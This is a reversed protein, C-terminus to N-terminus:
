KKRYRMGPATFAEAVGAIIAKSGFRAYLGSFEEGYNMLGTMNGLDRVSLKGGEDFHVVPVTKHHIFVQYLYDNDFDRELNKEWEEQSLDLGVYVGQGANKDMPKMVYKDKNNKVEEFVSTDGGFIGTFPIHNEIFKVEEENLLAKTKEDHMIKFFIKNHIIQSEIAGITCVAGDMYAKIFEEAQDRKEILEYTVLRRYIMDIKYDGFYLAGDRYEMNRPDVVKCNVGAREYAALFKDFDAVTGSEEFDMIAVNPKTNLSDYKSYIELSKKVWSDFFEFYEFEYKDSLDKMIKTDMLMAAIENDENMGSAGDTNIECMQFDDGDKYFIDFRAMPVEMGYGNDVLIMDEIFQPFDFEKRYEPNAKYEAIAKKGISMMTNSIRQFNEVDKEDVFFSQYEFPVPEGKYYATSHVAKEQTALFDEYYEKPNTKIKEIYEEIFKDSYM